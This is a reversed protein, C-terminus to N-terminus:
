MQTEIILRIILLYHSRTFLTANLDNINKNLKLHIETFQLRYVALRHIDSFEFKANQLRFLRKIHLNGLDIVCNPLHPNVLHPLKNIDM